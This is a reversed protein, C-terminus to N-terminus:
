VQNTDGTHEPTSEQTESHESNPRLYSESIQNRQLAQATTLLDTTELHQHEASKEKLTCEIAHDFIRIRLGSALNKLHQEPTDFYHNIQKHIQEDRISFARLLQEYQTKTLLNKFEIEIQQSM